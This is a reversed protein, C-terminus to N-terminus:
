AAIENPLLVPVFRERDLYGVRFPARTPGERPCARPPSVAARHAFPLEFFV